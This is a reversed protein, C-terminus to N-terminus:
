KDDDKIEEYEVDITEPEDTDGRFGFFDDCMGNLEDFFSDVVIM